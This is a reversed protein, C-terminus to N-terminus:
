RGRRFRRRLSSWPGRGGPEGKSGGLSLVADRYRGLAARDRERVYEEYEKLLRVRDMEMDVSSYLLTGPPLDNDFYHVRGHGHKLILDKVFRIKEDMTGKTVIEYRLNPYANRIVAEFEDLINHPNSTLFIVKYGKGHALDLIKKYQRDMHKLDVHGAPLKMMERSLRARLGDTGLLKYLAGYLLLKPFKLALYPKKRLTTEVISRRYLVGDIDFVIVREGEKGAVCSFTKM